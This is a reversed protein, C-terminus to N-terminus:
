ALYKDLERRLPSPRATSNKNAQWRHASLMVKPQETQRATSKKNAQWRHVSLMVKPQMEAAPCSYISIVHM